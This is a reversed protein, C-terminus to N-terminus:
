VPEFMRPALVRKRPRPVLKRKKRHARHRPKPQEEHAAVVTPTRALGEEYRRWPDADDEVCHARITQCGDRFFAVHNCRSCCLMAPLAAACAFGVHRCRSCHVETFAM